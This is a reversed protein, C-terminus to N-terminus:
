IFQSQNYHTIKEITLYDEINEIIDKENELSINYIYRDENNNSKYVGKSIKNDKIIVDLTAQNLFYYTGINNKM